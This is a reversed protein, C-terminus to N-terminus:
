SSWSFVRDPELYCREVAGLKSLFDIVMADNHGYRESLRKTEVIVVPKYRDLTARAGMLAKLEAGELDLKILGLSPLNFKDVPMSINTGKNDKICYRGRPKNGVLAVIDVKDWLAYGLVRVNTNRRTMAKLKGSLDTAPEFAIVERFYRALELTFEGLHAGGDIAISHDKVYKLAEALVKTMTNSSRLGVCCCVSHLWVANFWTNYIEHTVSTLACRVM